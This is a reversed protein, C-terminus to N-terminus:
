PITLCFQGPRSNVSNRSPKRAIWIRWRILLIVLFVVGALSFAAITAVVILETKNKHGLVNVGCFLNPVM